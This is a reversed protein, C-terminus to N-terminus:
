DWQGRLIADENGLHHATAAEGLVERLVVHRSGWGGPPPIPSTEMHDHDFRLTQLFPLPDVPLELKDVLWDGGGRDPAKRRRDWEAAFDAYRDRKKAKAKKKAM